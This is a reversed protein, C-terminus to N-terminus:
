CRVYIPSISLLSLKRQTHINEGARTDLTTYMAIFLRHHLNWTGNAVGLAKAKCSSPKTTCFVPLRLHHLSSPYLPSSLLSSFHGLIATSSSPSSIQLATSPLLSFLPTSILLRLSFFLLLFSLSILSSLVGGKRGLSRGSWDGIDRWSVPLPFFSPVGGNAVVM